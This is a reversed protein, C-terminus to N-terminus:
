TLTVQAGGARFVDRKASEVEAADVIRVLRCLTSSMAQTQEVRLDLSPDGAATRWIDSKVKEILAADVTPTLASAYAPLQSPQIQGGPEAGCGVLTRTRISCPPVGRHLLLATVVSPLLRM